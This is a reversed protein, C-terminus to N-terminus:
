APRVTGAPHWGDEPQVSGGTDALNTFTYDRAFTATVVLPNHPVTISHTRPQGDSWSVFRERIGEGVSYLSDVGIAHQTGREWVFDAPSIYQEGDVMVPLGSPETTIRVDEDKTFEAYEHIPGLM